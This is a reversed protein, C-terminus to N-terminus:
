IDNNSNCTISYYYDNSNIESFFNINENSNKEKIQIKKKNLFKM